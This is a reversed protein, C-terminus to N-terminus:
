PMEALLAEIKPNDVLQDTGIILPSKVKNREVWLGYHTLIVQKTGNIDIKHIPRLKKEFFDRIEEGSADLNHDEHFIILADTDEFNREDKDVIIFEVNKSQSLVEIRDSFKSKVKTYIKQISMITSSIEM